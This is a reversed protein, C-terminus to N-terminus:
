RTVVVLPHVDAPRLASNIGRRGRQLLEVHQADFETFTLTDSM